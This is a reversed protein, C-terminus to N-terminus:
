SSMRQSKGSRFNALVKELAAITVPKAVFDDMGADFCAQMEDQFAGATIAVIYPQKLEGRPQQRIRRTAEFGDLEPMHCDMLILDYKNQKYKALAELGNSALDAEFGLKKMLGLAVLQNVQNDEVVLVSPMDSAKAEKLPVVNERIGEPAGVVVNEIGNVTSNEIGNESTNESVVDCLFDFHFTSGQNFKSEAWIRGGMKEVLGKSIALGLGTGGYKRNTSANVQSFPVFLKGLDEQKIGCGTDQVSLQIRWRNGELFARSFINIEGKDTFKIANSILNMIVQRFRTQDGVVRPPMGPASKFEVSIGKELARFSFLEITDEVTKVLEFPLQELEMKNVELKSFDLIDDLIGLLSLASSQIIRLKELFVTDKTSALLLNSMGIIGNMPTRIEHSMNALFSSKTRAASLAEERSAILQEEMQKLETIDQVTGLIKIPTNKDDTEVKGLSKIHRLSGDKLRIRYFICFSRMGNQVVDTIVKSPIHRDEPVLSSLFVDFRADISSSDFDFLANHGKSWRGRYTRLDLEWSGFRGTLEAQELSEQAKELAIRNEELNSIDMFIGTLQRSESFAEKLSRGRTMVHIWRGKANIVRIVSEYQYNDSIESESIHQRWNWLDDPHIKGEWVNLPLPNGLGGLGLTELWRQDLEIHRQGLDIEWVGLAASEIALNLKQAVKESRRQAFLLKEELEIQITKDLSMGLIFVDEGGASKLPVRWTEIHLTRTGSERIDEVNEINMQASEKELVELDTRQRLRALGEPFIEFDTKGVAQDRTVGWLVEAAKNWEVYRGSQGAYSKCYIAIPAHKILQSSDYLPQSAKKLEMLTVAQDSLLRLSELQQKSLERPITDIICLTGLNYGSSTTLPTGAYFVINPHGVVLPNDHFRSDKRADTVLFVDEGLITHSCFSIDRHTQNVDLGVKSKFWQRAEDVLSILAIPVGCINAALQTIGDFDPDPLTDLIALSHLERLRDSESTPIPPKNM